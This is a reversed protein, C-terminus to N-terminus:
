QTHELFLTFTMNQPTGSVGTVVISLEDNNSLVVDAPDTEAPTTTVSIGTFGTAGSGNIEVDVTASTGSQLQYRVKVLKATQGAALSVFFPVILDTQGVPVKIEGGIAYTKGVRYIKDAGAPGAPGVEGSLRKAKFTFGDARLNITPTGSSDTRQIQVTVFEDVVTSTYFFKKAVPVEVSQDGVLSGDDLATVHSESGPIVTTDNERVRGMVRSQFSGQVPVDVDGSYEIEYPGIEHLILRDTNTNDHEVVLPQNEDDTADCPVDVWALTFAQTTTRRAQVIAQDGPTGGGGGGGFILIVAVDKNNSPLAGTTTPTVDITFWGTNDTVGTIGALMFATADNAEQIYIRDGSTLANLLTSADFNGNTTDNIFLQTVSAPVANDYRLRKSGPNAATTTTSFRWSLSIAGAGGTASPDELVWDEAVGSGTNAIRTYRQGNSRLYLSGVPADPEDVEPTSSGAFVLAVENLLLGEHEMANDLIDGM